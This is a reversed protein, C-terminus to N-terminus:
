VSKDLRALMQPSPMVVKKALGLAKLTNIVWWTPDVEWWRLGAKAVNPYAHHNNHWGEGYALIAAWWLNRSNDDSDDFNRYGFLHTASNIFWTGHWVLVTRLFMGYFVFSWGGIALLVFGLAIQIFAFNRELWQYYPDRAVDPAYRQYAERNFFEKQPYILWLMHSWWFGRSSSYPDKYDDETHAHHLRHGSVWFIPGGELALAGITVLVYELWKPVQFSRHTLLRHYALCIGVSATLWHLVIMLGLASWSFFWPSMLALVHYVGFIGVSFWNIPPVKYEEPVTPAPPSSVSGLTM